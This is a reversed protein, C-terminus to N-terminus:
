RSPPSRNTLWSEAPGCHAAITAWFHEAHKRKEPRVPKAQDRCIWFAKAGFWKWSWAECSWNSCYNKYNSFNNKWGTIPISEYLWADGCLHNKWVRRWPRHEEVWRQFHFTLCHHALFSHSQTGHLKCVALAARHSHNKLFEAHAQRWSCTLDGKCGQHKWLDWDCQMISVAHLKSLYYSLRIEATANTCKACKSLIWKAGVVNLVCWKRKDPRTPSTLKQIIDCNFYNCVTSPINAVFIRWPKSPCAPTGLSCNSTQPGPFWFLWISSISIVEDQNGSVKCCLRWFRGWGSSNGCGRIPSLFILFFLPEPFM